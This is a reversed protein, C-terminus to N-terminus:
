IWSNTQIFFNLCSWPLFIEIDSTTAMRSFLHKRIPIVIEQGSSTRKQKIIHFNTDLEDNTDNQISSEADNEDGLIVSEDHNELDDTFVVEANSLLQRGSLRNIDHGEEVDSDEDSLAHVPPPEIYISEIAEDDNEILAVADDLSYLKRSRFIFSFSDTDRHIRDRICMESGM